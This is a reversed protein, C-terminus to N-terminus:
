AAILRQFAVGAGPWFLSSTQEPSSYEDPRHSYGEPMSHLDNGDSLGQAMFSSDHYARSIM